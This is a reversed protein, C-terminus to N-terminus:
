FVEPTARGAGTEPNTAYASAEPDPSRDEDTFLRLLAAVLVQLAFIALCLPVMLKVPWVPVSTLGFRSERIEFSSLGSDITAMVAWLLFGIVIVSGVTQLVLAIRTPLRGVLVQTRVHVVSREARAMGLLVAACLVIEVYETAGPISHGQFTRTVIDATTLAALVVVGALALYGATSVLAGVCRDLVKVVAGM